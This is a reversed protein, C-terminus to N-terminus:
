LYGFATLGELIHPLLLDMDEQSLDSNWRGSQGKSVDDLMKELVDSGCGLGLFGLVRTLTDTPHCVLDEYRIQLFPGEELLYFFRHLGMVSRNWQIGCVEITSYRKHLEAMDEFQPGWTKVYTRRKLKKGLQYRLYYSLFHPAERLPPFVRHKLLYDLELPERHRDRISCASDRGDRVIHLIPAQPFITRVFPIRLPLLTSKAIIRKGPNKRALRDFYNRIYTSTASSLDDPGLPMNYRDMNGYCWVRELEYTPGVIGPHRRLIERFIKTGSRPAGIVLIPHVSSTSTMETFSAGYPFCDV